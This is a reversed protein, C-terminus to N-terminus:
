ATGIVFEGIGIHDLVDNFLDLGFSGAQFRLAVGFCDGCFLGKNSGKVSQNLCWTQRLIM